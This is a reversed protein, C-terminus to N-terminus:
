PRRGSVFAIPVGPPPPVPGVDVCGAANLMSVLTDADLLDGGDRLTRLKM